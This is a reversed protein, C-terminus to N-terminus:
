QFQNVKSIKRHTDVLSFDVGKGIKKEKLATKSM